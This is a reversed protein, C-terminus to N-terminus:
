LGGEMGLASLIILRAVYLYCLHRPYFSYFFYKGRKSVGKEGNYAMILLFAPLCQPEYLMCLYGIVCSLGRSNRLYYFILILIIGMVDYDSKIYYAGAVCAAVALFAIPFRFDGFKEENGMVRQWVVMALLGLFLTFFVNQSDSYWISDYFAINFPLESLLAFVFLRILYKKVNKTHFFGEVLLFCYLPFSTRGIWRLARYVHDIISTYEGAGSYYSTFFLLVAAGIHDILMTILAINKLTAGSIGNKLAPELNSEHQEMANEYREM